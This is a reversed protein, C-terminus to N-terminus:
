SCANFNSDHTVHMQSKSDFQEPLDIGLILNKQMRFSEKLLQATTGKGNTKTKNLKM